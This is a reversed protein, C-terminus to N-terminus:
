SVLLILLSSSVVIRFPLTAMGPVSGVEYFVDDSEFIPAPPTRVTEFTIFFM